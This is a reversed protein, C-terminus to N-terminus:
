SAWTWILGADLKGLDLDTLGLFFKLYCYQIRKGFQKTVQKALQLKNTLQPYNTLMEYATQLKYTTTKVM